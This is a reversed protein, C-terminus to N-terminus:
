QPALGHAKLLPTDDLIDRTNGDIAVKGGDMVVSYAWM